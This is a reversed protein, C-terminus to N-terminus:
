QNLFNMLESIHVNEDVEVFRQKLTIQSSFDTNDDILQKLLSSINQLLIEMEAGATTFGTFYIKSIGDIYVADQNSISRKILKVIESLFNILYDKGLHDSVGDLGSLEIKAVSFVDRNNLNLQEIESTILATFLDYETSHKISISEKSIQIFSGSRSLRKGKETLEYSYINNSVLYEVASENGCGTCHAKILYDQFDHSCTKCKFMVAPKDYDVGIHRLEKTCKPCVLSGDDQRFQKEESIMACRFHHIMEEEALDASLCKPCVERYHLFSDHCTNCEYIKEVFSPSFLGEDVASKLIMSIKHEHNIGISNSLIPYVVGLKFNRNRLPSLSTWNRTYMFRLTKSIVKTEEIMFEEDINILNMSRSQINQILDVYGDIESESKINGDSLQLIYPHELKTWSLVFIPKLSISESNSARFNEISKITSLVNNKEIVIADADIQDMYSLVENDQIFIIKHGEIIKSKM